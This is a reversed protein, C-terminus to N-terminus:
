KHALYGVAIGGVVGWFTQQTKQRKLVMEKHEDELVKNAIERNVISDIDITAQSQQTVVVKGDATKSQSETTNTKLEETKGNYSVVVPKPTNTIEVDADSATEKPVYKIVTNTEEGVNETVPVNNKKDNLAKDIITQEATKTDNADPHSAKYITFETNLTEYKAEYHKATFHYTLGSFILGVVLVYIIHKKWGSLSEFRSGIDM